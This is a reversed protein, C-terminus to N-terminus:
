SPIPNIHDLHVRLHRIQRLLSKAKNENYNTFERATETKPRGAKSKSKILKDLKVVDPNEPVFIQSTKENDAKTDAQGRAAGDTKSCSEAVTSPTFEGARKGKQRLLFGEIKSAIRGPTWDGDDIRKLDYGAYMALREWDDRDRPYPEGYREEWEAAMEEFGVDADAALRKLEADMERKLEAFTANIKGFMDSGVSRVVADVDAAVSLAVGTARVKESLKRLPATIKDRLTAEVFAEGCRKSKDSAM